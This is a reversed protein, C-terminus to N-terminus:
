DYQVYSINKKKKELTLLAIFCNFSNFHQFLRGLNYLCCMTSLHAIGYEYFYVILYIFVYIYQIYIHFM